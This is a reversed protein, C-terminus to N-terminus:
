QPYNYTILWQVGYKDACMGCYAGWFTKNAPMEVTGGDSLRNFLQDTEAESETTICVYHFNGFVVKHEMSDLVDTAMFEHGSPLRLCIHMFKNQDELPMKECGPMDKFRQYAKFEGGFVSKYFDMVEGANGQFNFYSNTNLM